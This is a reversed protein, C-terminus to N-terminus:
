AHMCVYVCVKEVRAAEMAINVDDRLLRIQTWEHMCVYM